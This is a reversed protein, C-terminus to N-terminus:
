SISELIKKGDNECQDVKSSACKEVEEKLKTILLVTAAVDKEITTPLTTIDEEIKITLKALCKAAHIGHGCAKIEGKINEIEDVITKVHNLADQAYSIGQNIKDSVCHVMDNSLQNPLNVLRDENGKLCDDINVGAKKAKEKLKDLEAKFDNEFGQMKEKAEAQVKDAVENVKNKADDLAKQADAVARDVDIIKKGVCLGITELIEKGDKECKDVKSSACKQVQEKLKSILLVTAAVDAQIKTPLTTIDKEIRLALKALCKISKIGHGCKKISSKINEIEEVVKKVQNLADQAYSIGENIKDSVCHVMDNSLQNPLNVLRDENEKLCDDINVGAKKAKDKLKDLEARFENQLGQMKEKAANQVKDAVENVKNKADDLAKQADVLAKDVVARLKKLLDDAKNRPELLLREIDDQPEVAHVQVIVVLMTVGLLVPIPYGM